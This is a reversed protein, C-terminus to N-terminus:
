LFCKNRPVLCLNFDSIIKSGSSERGRLGSDLKKVIIQCIISAGATSNAKNGSGLMSGAMPGVLPGLDMNKTM